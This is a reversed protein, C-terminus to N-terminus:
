NSEEPVVFSDNYLVDQDSPIYGDKILKLSHTSGSLLNGLFLKGELNTLGLYRGDLWVQVGSLVEDSCFDAVSIEIPVPANIVGQEYTVTMSAAAQGNSIVVVLVEMESRGQIDQVTLQLRDGRVKYSCSLLGVVEQPLRIQDETFLPTGGSRGIWEWTIEGHPLHQLSATRALQFQITESHQYIVGVANKVVTGATSNLSYVRGTLGLLKLYASQGVSFTSRAENYLQIHKEDDLELSAQGSSVSVGAVEQFDASVTTTPYTTTPM